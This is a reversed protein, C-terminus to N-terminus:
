AAQFAAATFGLSRLTDTAIETEPFKLLTSPPMDSLTKLQRNVLEADFGFALLVAEAQEVANYKHAPGSSLGQKVVSIEVGGGETKSIFIDAKM